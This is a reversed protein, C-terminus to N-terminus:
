YNIGLFENIKNRIDIQSNQREFPDIERKIFSDRAQFLIQGMQPSISGKEMMRPNYLEAILQKHEGNEPSISYDGM